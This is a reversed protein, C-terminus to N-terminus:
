GTARASYIRLNADKLYERLKRALEGSPTCKVFMVAQNKDKGYWFPKRDLKKLIRDM